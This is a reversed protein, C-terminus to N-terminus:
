EKKNLQNIFASGNLIFIFLVGVYDWVSDTLHNKLNVLLFSCGLVTFLPLYTKSNSLIKM